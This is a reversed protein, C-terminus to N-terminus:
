LAGGAVVVGYKWDQPLAFFQSVLVGSQSLVRVQPAYGPNTAVIVEDKGDGNVDAAALNLGGKYTLAYAYFQGKLKTQYDIVRVHAVSGAGTGNIIEDQGDGDTDGVALNVGNKYTLAYAFFQGVLGAQYNFIRVHPTYGARTSVVIEAKGDANVDGAAVNLDLRWTQPFTFFQYKVTGAMNFIRIQAGSKIAPMIIIEETGDGDVDGTAIKSGIKWNQPFSYFEGIKLGANNFVRILPVSTGRPSTVIENNGDGNVDGVSINVGTRWTSDYAFFQSQLKGDKDLIRVQPAYGEHTGVVIDEMINSVSATASGTNGLADAFQFTFSGKKSFTRTKSASNNTVTVSESPVLTAVVSGNIPSSNSYSVTATPALADVLIAKNAALNTTPTFNVVAAGYVDSIVGSISTVNLDASNEGAAVTYNCTGTQSNSIAFACTGGSDLTVSVNGSSTVAHSFTFIIDIVEGAKYSGDAKSSSANTITAPGVCAPEVRGITSCYGAQDMEVAQLAKTTAVCEASGAAYLDQCAAILANYACNFGCSTTYYSTEARYFIREQKDRGIGTIACGNFTGGMAMLYAAHNPVSSNLHVGGGDETGCYFTPSYFRDPYAKAGDGVNYTLSSPDSMSRSAGSALDEGVLWDSSGDRYYELAEGFVDSNNENLAGSEGSYTLGAPAGSGNLISFYNVAHAYEHGSIDTAVFGDCFRVSNRGNFFANPCSLADNLDLTHYDIYTLAATNSSPFTSSGDGMGGLNNAGDRSFMSSYYAHASGLHDYINDTDSGGYIPNVGRATQGESRGFIYNIIPFYYNTDLWCDGDGVSCDWVHRDIATQLGTIQYVLGGAMADIFYFEHRAPDQRFFEIEWALYNKKDTTNIVKSKNFIYLDAKLVEATELNFQKKWYERARGIAENQSINPSTDLSIEPVIGSSASGVSLDKNVHVIMQGGFVPVGQYLQNYLIHEMGLEDKQKNVLYAEKLSNQLGFKQGYDRIFQDAIITSDTKINKGISLPIGNKGGTIFTILDTNEDRTIQLKSEAPVKKISPNNFAQTKGAIFFNALIIIAFVAVGGLIKNAKIM